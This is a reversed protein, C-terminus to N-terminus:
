AVALLPALFGAPQRSLAVSVIYAFVLLAAAAAPIRLSPSRPGRFVLVGCAIYIVLGLVKATLWDSNYFPYQGIIVALTLGSALLVTDIVHPLVRLWGAPRVGALLLRGARGAFLTLSLAVCTIHTCLAATYVLSVAM